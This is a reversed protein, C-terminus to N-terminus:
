FEFHIVEVPPEVRRMLGALAEGPGLVYFVRGGRGVMRKVTNAWEVTSAVQNALNDRIEIAKGIYKATANMILPIKPDRVEISKMFEGIKDRVPIMLSCHSANIPLNRFKGRYEAVLAGAASVLDPSGAIVIQRESNINAIEAGSKKSIDKVIQLDLGLVAAMSGPTKEHQERMWQGRKRALKVGDELEIVGSVISASIEGLSHGAVQRPIVGKERLAEAGAVQVTVTALQIFEPDSLRRDSNRFCLDAIDLSCAESARDFVKRAASSEDYVNRGMGVHDDGKGDQGSFVFATALEKSM